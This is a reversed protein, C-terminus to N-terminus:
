PNKQGEGCYPSGGGFPNILGNGYQSGYRGYPNSTSESAYPDVSLRDRYQDQQDYSKPADATFPNTASKNSDLTGYQGSLNEIGDGHQTHKSYPNETSNLVYPNPSLNGLDKEDAFVSTAFLLSISLVHVAAREYICRDAMTSRTKM